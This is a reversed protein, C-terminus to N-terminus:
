EGIRGYKADLDRSYRDPDEEYQGTESNYYLGAANLSKEREADSMGSHEHFWEGAKHLGDNVDDTGSLGSPMAVEAMGFMFKFVQISVVIGVYGVVVAVLIKLIKM